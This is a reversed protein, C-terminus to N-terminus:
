ARGQWRRRTMGLLGLAGSGLLVFTSPEPVPSLSSPTSASAWTGPVLSEGEETALGSVNKEGLDVHSGLSLFTEIFADDNEVLISWANIAGTADTKINFIGISSNLNTLTEAGDSFSYSIPSEETLFPTIPLPSVLEFSGQVSGGLYDTGVFSTFANGTYTYTTTDALLPLPMLLLASLLLRLGL